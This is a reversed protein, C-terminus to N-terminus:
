VRERCSARGIKAEEEAASLSVGDRLRAIVQLGLIESPVPFALPKWFDTQANPYAFGRPMVGVVSYIRADLTLPRGIVQPDAGFLRQWAAYSLVVVDDSGPTEDAPQFARGLIPQVGLMSFLAPSAELGSLRVPEAGAMTVSMAREMSMASFTTSRDRWETFLAPSMSTTREPAGSFSEEAPVNEVLRVLADSNAYPLPQLLISDVISFIATNAGIALGLTLIAVAAFGPARDLQRIAYVLDQRFTDMGSAVDTAGGGHIDSRALM